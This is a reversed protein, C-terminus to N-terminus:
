VTELQIENSKGVDVESATYCEIADPRTREARSDRCSQRFRGSWISGFAPGWAFGVKESFHALKAFYLFLGSAVCVSVISLGGGWM